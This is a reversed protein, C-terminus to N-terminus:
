FRLEEEAKAGRFFFVWVQKGEIEALPFVLGFINRDGYFNGKFIM